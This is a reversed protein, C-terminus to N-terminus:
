KEIKTPIGLYILIGTIGKADTCNITIVNDVETVKGINNYKNDYIDNSDFINLANNGINLGAITLGNKSDVVFNTIVYPTKEINYSGILGNNPLSSKTSGWLTIQLGNETENNIITLTFNPPFSSKSDPAIAIYNNFKSTEIPITVTTNNNITIKEPNKNTSPTEESTSSILYTSKPNQGTFTTNLRKQEDTYEASDKISIKFKKQLVMSVPTAAAIRNKTQLEVQEKLEDATIGEQYKPKYAIIGLNLIIISLLLFIIVIYYFQPIKFNFIKKYQM